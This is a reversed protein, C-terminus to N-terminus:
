GSALKVKEILEAADKVTVISEAGGEGISVEFQEELAMM